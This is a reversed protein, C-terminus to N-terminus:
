QKALPVITVPIRSRRLVRKAVSGLFTHTFGKEHAGMIILDADIEKSIKLIQEEPYGKTVRIELRNLDVPEGDEPPTECLKRIRDNIEDMAEHERKAFMEKGAEERFYTSFAYKAELSLEEVVHLSTIHANFQNAIFLAYQFVQPAAQSLDTAYLIKQIKNAMINGRLTTGPASHSVPM